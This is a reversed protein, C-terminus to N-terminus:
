SRKRTMADLANIVGTRIDNIAAQLNERFAPRLFPTAKGSVRLGRRGFGHRQAWTGIYQAPVFHPKTDFERFPAYKVASGVIGRVGNVINRVLWAISARLRGTDVPAKQRASRTVRLVARTMGQRAGARAVEPMARIASRLADMGEISAM